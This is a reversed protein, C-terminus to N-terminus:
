MMSRQYGTPTLGTTRRFAATFSSTESFGVALGVDTVTVAPKALLLKAREIRRQAHYRHPPMGFSQKFSRCFHYPSLRALDALMALSIPEAVHQEIYDAVTRQQWAALGGRVPIDRRPAGQILRVLEHVLVVGLAECYLRDDALPREILAKLKVAHDWLATHEFFLRPALSTNGDETEPETPLMAPDLYFYAIHPLSRPEQWDHYEHGAPVFVFKRRLNRLGSRPLGEVFTSGDSREGDEFLALLHLPARFYSEFRRHKTIHVAEAAMGNWTSARRDVIEHPSLEVVAKSDDKLTPTNPPCHTFAMPGLMPPPVSRQAADCNDPARSFITTAHGTTVM